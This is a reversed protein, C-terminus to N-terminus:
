FLERIREDTNMRRVYYDHEQRAIELEENTAEDLGCLIGLREFYRYRAEAKIEEATM